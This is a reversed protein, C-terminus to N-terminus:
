PLQIRITGNSRAHPDWIAISSRPRMTELLSRSRSLLVLCLLRRTAGDIWTQTRLSTELNSGAPRALLSGWLCRVHSVPVLSLMGGLASSRVLGCPGFRSQFRGRISLRYLFWGDSESEVVLRKPGHRQTSSSFIRQQQEQLHQQDFEHNSQEHRCNQGQRRKIKFFLSFNATKPSQIKQAHPM